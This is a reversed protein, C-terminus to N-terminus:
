KRQWLYFQIPYFFRRKNISVYYKLQLTADHQWQSCCFLMSIGCRCWSDIHHCKEVTPEQLMYACVSKRDDLPIKGNGNVMEM